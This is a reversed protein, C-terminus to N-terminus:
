FAPRLALAGGRENIWAADRGGAAFLVNCM